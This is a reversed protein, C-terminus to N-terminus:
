PSADIGAGGCMWKPTCVADTCDGSACQSDQTCSTGLEGLATCVDNVCVLAGSCTGDCAAGEGPLATCTRTTDDCYSGKACVPANAEPDCSKGEALLDVCKGSAADCRLGLQCLRALNPTATDAGHGPDCGAGRGGFVGFKADCTFTAGTGGQCSLGSVFCTPDDVPCEGLLEAFSKCTQAACVLGEACAGVACSQGRAVGPTCTGEVCQLGAACNSGLGDNNCAGGEAVRTVCAGSCANGEVQCWAGAECDGSLQCPAGLARLGHFAKELCGYFDTGCESALENMCTSIAAYDPKFFGAEIKSATDNAFTSECQARMAAAYPACAAHTASAGCLVANDCYAAEFAECYQELSRIRYTIAPAKSECGVIAVLQLLFTVRLPTKVHPEM